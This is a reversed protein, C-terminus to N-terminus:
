SFRNRRLLKEVNLTMEQRTPAAAIVVDAFPVHKIAQAVADSMVVAVTNPAGAILGGLHAATRPSFLPLIVRGEGSLVARVSDDLPQLPQDYLVQVDVHTGGQALQVDIGGRRHTGALHVLPGTPPDAKLSAILGEADRQVLHVDWGAARAVQATKEGVCYAVRGQGKPAFKVGNASTFIVSAADSLDAAHGTPVIDVLPAYLVCVDVLADAAIGDVFNQAVARPRTMVLTQKSM